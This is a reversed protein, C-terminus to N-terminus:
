RSGLLALVDDTVKINLTNLDLELRLTGKADAMTEDRIFVEAPNRGGSITPNKLSPGKGFLSEYTNSLRENPTIVLLTTPTTAVISGNSSTYIAGDHTFIQSGDNSKSGSANVTGTKDKNVEVTVRLIANEFVLCVGEAKGDVVDIKKKVLNDSATEPLGIDNLAKKINLNLDAVFGGDVTSINDLQLMGDKLEANHKRVPLKGDSKGDIMETTKPKNDALLGKEKEQAYTPSLAASLATFTTFLITASVVPNKLIEGTEHLARKFRSAPHQKSSASTHQAAKKQIEHHNMFGSISLQAQEFGPVGTQVLQPFHRKYAKGGSTPRGDIPSRSFFLSDTLHRHLSRGLIERM